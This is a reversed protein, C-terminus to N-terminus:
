YITCNPKRRVQHYVWGASALLVIGQCLTPRIPESAVFWALGSHKIEPEGDVGISIEAAPGDV